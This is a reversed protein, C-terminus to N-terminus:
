AAREVPDAEPTKCTALEPWIDSAPVDLARAVKPVHRLPVHGTMLWMSVASRKEGLRTAAATAGGLRRVIETVDM